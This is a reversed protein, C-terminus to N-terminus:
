SPSKQIFGYNHFACLNDMDEVRGRYAGFHADFAPHTGASAVLVHLEHCEVVARRNAVELYHKVERLERLLLEFRHGGARADVDCATKYFAGAFALGALHLGVGQSIRCQRGRLSGGASFPVGELEQALFRVQTGAGGGEAGNQSHAAGQSEGDMLEKLFFAEVVEMRRKDGFAVAFPAPAINWTVVRGSSLKRTGFIAGHIVALVEEALGRSKSHAALEFALESGRSESRYVGEARVKRASFLLM